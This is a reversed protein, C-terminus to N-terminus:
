AVARSGAWVGAGRARGGTPGAGAPAGVPGARQLLPCPHDTGEAAQRRGSGAVATSTAKLSRQPRRSTTAPPDCYDVKSTPHFPGLMLRRVFQGDEAIEEASVNFTLQQMRRLRQGAITVPGAFWTFRRGSAASSPSPRGPAPRHPVHRASGEHAADLARVSTATAADIIRRNSRGAILAAAIAVIATSGGAILAAAITPDMGPSPLDQAARGRPRPRSLAEREAQHHFGRLRRAQGPWTPDRGPLGPHEGVYGAALRLTAAEVRRRHPVNDVDAV